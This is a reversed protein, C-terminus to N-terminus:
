VKVVVAGDRVRYGYSLMADFDSREYDSLTVWELDKAMGGHQWAYGLQLAVAQPDDTEGLLQIKADLKVVSTSLRLGLDLGAFILAPVGIRLMLEPEVSPAFLALALASDVILRDDDGLAM